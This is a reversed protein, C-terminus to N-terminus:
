LHRPLSCVLPCAPRPASRRPLRRTAVKTRVPPCGSTPRAHLGWPRPVDLHGHHTYGGRGQEREQLVDVIYRASELRVRQDDWHGDSLFKCLRQPARACQV